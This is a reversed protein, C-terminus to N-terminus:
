YKSVPAFNPHLLIGSYKYANVYKFFCLCKGEFKIKKLTEPM